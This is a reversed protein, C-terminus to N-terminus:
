INEAPGTPKAFIIILSLAGIGLTIKIINNMILHIWTQDSLREAFIPNEVTIQYTYGLYTGIFLTIGLFIIYLFLWIPSTRIFYASIMLGICMGFFLFLFDRQITRTGFTELDNIASTGEDSNNLGATNLGDSIYPVIFSIIFFGIALITATIIFVIQDLLDGKKRTIKRLEM